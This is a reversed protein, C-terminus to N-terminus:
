NVSEDPNRPANTGAIQRLIIPDLHGLQEAVIEQDSVKVHEVQRTAAGYTRELVFQVFKMEAGTMNDADSSIIKHLKKEMIFAAMPGVVSGFYDESNIGDITKVTKVRAM